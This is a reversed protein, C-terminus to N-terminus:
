ESEDGECGTGNCDKPAFRKSNELQELQEPCIVPEGSKDRCLMKSMQKMAERQQEEETAGCKRPRGDDGMCNKAARRQRAVERSDDTRQCQAYCADTSRGCNQRCKTGVGCRSTCDSQRQACRKACRDDARADTPTMVLAVCLVSAILTGALRLPSAAKLSSHSSDLTM